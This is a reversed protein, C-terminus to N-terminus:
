DEKGKGQLALVIQRIHKVRADFLARRIRGVAIDFYKRNIEIGIFARNLKICAVGTTGSGMFPDLCVSEPKVWQEVIHEIQALPRPCPHAKVYDPTGKKRTAPNTNAVHFDRSLTGASWRKGETWWVIVPDYAFQMACSRIQVFNKCAAFLRYDRPFWESFSRCNPMAQWVFLPAGPLCCRECQELISWLWLGYGEASDDHSEYKFGIGYPPDTVVAAVSSEPMERLVDLCDACYLM